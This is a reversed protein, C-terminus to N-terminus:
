GWAFIFDFLTNGNPISGLVLPKNSWREVLQAIPVTVIHKMVCQEALHRDTAKRHNRRVGVVLTTVGVGLQTCRGQGLDRSYFYFFCCFLTRPGPISGPDVAQFAVISVM